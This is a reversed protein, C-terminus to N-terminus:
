PQNSQKSRTILPLDGAVQKVFDTSTNVFNYATNFVKSNLFKKFAESDPDFQAYLWYEDNQEQPNEIGM